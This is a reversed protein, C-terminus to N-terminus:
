SRSHLELLSLALPLLSGLKVRLSKTANHVQKKVTHESIDLQEAIAKHSLGDRRSLLFVERMKPPLLDVELEIRAALERVRITDETVTSGQALFDELSDLYKAHVKDHAFIKLSRNRVSAYLFGPLNTGSELGPAKSWLMVFIDQVVDQAAQDDQLLRRAYRYLVAWYRDYIAAFAEQEGTKLLDLLEADSLETLRV